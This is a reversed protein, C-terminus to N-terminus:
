ADADARVSRELREPGAEAIREFCEDLVVFSEWADGRLRRAVEDVVRREIPDRRIGKWLADALAVLLEELSCDFSAWQAHTVCCRAVVPDVDQALLMAEGAEEHNKGPNTLENPHLIKGADHLMAGARVLREDVDVGLTRMARLLEDAAELVLRGHTMLRRPAGLAVLIERAAEPSVVRNM